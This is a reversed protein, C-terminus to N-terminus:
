GHRRDLFLPKYPITVYEINHGNHSILGRGLGTGPMATRHNLEVPPLLMMIQLIKTEPQQPGHPYCAACRGGRCPTAGPELGQIPSSPLLVCFYGSFMVSFTSFIFLICM